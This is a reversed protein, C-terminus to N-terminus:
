RLEDEVIMKRATRWFDRLHRDSEKMAERIERVDDLNKIANKSELSMSKKCSSGAKRKHYKYNSATVGAHMHYPTLGFYVKKAYKWHPVKNIDSRVRPEGTSPVILTNIVGYIFKLKSSTYKKLGDKLGSNNKNLEIGAWERTDPDLESALRFLYKKIWEIVADSHDTKIGYQQNRAGNSDETLADRDAYIHSVKKEFTQYEVPDFVKLADYAEPFEQLYFAISEIDNKDTKELLDERLGISAIKRAKPTVKQPFCLIEVGKSDAVSRLQRLQDITWSQALSDDEQARIHADEIVIDHGNLEPVNLQIFDENSIVYHHKTEPVFVYTEKKGIDCTIFKNM